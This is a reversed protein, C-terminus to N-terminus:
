RGVTSASPGAAGNDRLLRMAELREPFAGPLELATKLEKGAVDMRKEKAYVAALHFHLSPSDPDRAVAAELLERARRTRGARYQVWGLVDLLQPDSPSDSELPLAVALAHPWLAPDKEQSALLMALRYRVLDLDPRKALLDEYAQVAQATDGLMAAIQGIMMHLTFDDPFRDLGQRLMALAEASQDLGFYYDVMHRYPVPSNPQLQFGRRLIAEAKGPDRGEVFVRAALYRAFAFQPDREAIKSLQEGAYVGENAQSWTLALAALVTPFRPSIALAEFFSKEALERHGRARELIGAVFPAFVTGSYAQRAKEVTREAEAWNKAEIQEDLAHRLEALRGPWHERTWAGFNSLDTKGDARTRRPPAPEPGLGCKRVAELLEHGREAQLCAIRSRAARDDGLAQAGRTAEEIAATLGRARATSDVLLAWAAPDKPAGAVAAQADLLAGSYRGLQFRLDGRMLRADARAPAVEVASDLTTEPTEILGTKVMVTAVGVFGDPSEPHMESLTEYELFALDTNGAALEMAALERRAGALDPQLRLAARFEVRAQAVDGVALRGEARHVHYAARRALVFKSRVAFPAAALLAAVVCLALWGRWTVRRHIRGLLPTREKIGETPIETPTGSVGTVPAALRRRTPNPRKRKNRKSV